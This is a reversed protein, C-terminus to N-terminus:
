QYFQVIMNMLGCRDHIDPKISTIIRHQLAPPMSIPPAFPLSEKFCATDSKRRGEELTRNRLLVFIDNM